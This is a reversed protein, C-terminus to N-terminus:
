EAAPFRWRTADGPFASWAFAVRPRFVFMGEGVPDGGEGAEASPRYDYKEGMADDLTRSLEPSPGRLVEIAGELIVVDAGDELHIAARPNATLNRATRTAPGMGFYVAGDLWLGWVPMAHPQGGESVTSIWYNKAERLKEEARSWPQVGEVTDPVGYGEIRPRSAIPEVTADRTKAAETL